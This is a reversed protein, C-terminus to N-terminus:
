CCRHCVTVVASVLFIKICKNYASRLRNVTGINHYKWLAIDYFGMCFSKFLLLKVEQSCKGSRRLLVNTRIFMNRIEREIDADDKQNQTVMHGLYRFKHAFQVTSNGLKFAPFSSAVIKNRCKPAVVMCVTKKVNCIMDTTGRHTTLINLMQQMGAWSPSLLVLDDAYSM